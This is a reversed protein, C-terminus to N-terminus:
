ESQDQSVAEYGQYNTDENKNESVPIEQKIADVKKLAAYVLLGAVLALFSGVIFEDKYSGRQFCEIIWGDDPATSPSPKITLTELVEPPSFTSSSLTM